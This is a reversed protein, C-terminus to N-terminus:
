CCKTASPATNCRMIVEPRIEENMKHPGGPTPFVVNAFITAEVKSVGNKVSEATFQPTFSTRSTISRAFLECNKECCLGM